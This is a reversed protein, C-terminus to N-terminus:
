GWRGVSWPDNESWDLIDESADKIDEAQDFPNVHKPDYTEPLVVGGDENQLIGGDENLVAHEYLNQTHHEEMRDIDEVGTNFQQSSYEILQTTLKWSYVSGLPYMMEFPDVFVIEFAKHHAMFFILDGERPRILDKALGVENMFTKRAVQFSVQDRIELGAFKSLFNGDGQFGEVNDLYVVLPIAEEYTRQADETLVPDVGDPGNVRPVYWVDLGHIQVSEVVLDELLSQELTNETSNTRIWPNTPM